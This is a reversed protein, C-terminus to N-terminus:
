QEPARRNSIGHKEKDSAVLSPLAEDPSLSVGGRGIVLFSSFDLGLRHACLERLQTSADVLEGPLIVLSAALDLEPAAIKVTGSTAGTATVSTASSLFNDARLFINGGRGIAANASILSHDLVIFKPDIFINGGAGGETQASGAVTATGATATLSSDRLYIFDPATLHISGGNRGASATVNSGERLDIRSDSAVDITGADALAASTTILSTGRLDIEDMARVVVSGADGSGTNSSGIFAASDLSLTGLQLRVSGSSGAGLSTASVGVRMGKVGEIELRDAEISIDGGRGGAGPSASEAGIITPRLGDDSSIVVKEAQVTIRGGNGSGATGAAIVGGDSVVLEGTTVSVNGGAGSRLTSASVLSSDEVSTRGSVELDVDGGAGVGSASTNISTGERLELDETRVVINGGSGTGATRASIEGSDSLTMQGATVNISGGRGANPGALSEAFIGSGEGDIALREGGFVIDGGRGSGSTTASIKGGSEVLADHFNVEMSGGRGGEHTEATIAAGMSLRATQADVRLNGGDGSGFAAASIEANANLFLRGATVLVAGSPGTSGPESRVSITTGAGALTLHESAVEISGGAGSNQTTASIYAGSNLTLHTANVNALGAGGSGTTRVTILGGDSMTLQGIRADINGGSGSARKGEASAALGAFVIPASRPGFLQLSRAGAIEATRANVFIDGADGSGLTSSAIGAGDLIHLEKADVRISGGDGGRLTAAFVGTLRSSGHGNITFRETSIRVPGANAPGRTSTSVLMGSAITLDGTQLKVVGARGANEMIGFSNAFIGANDTFNNVLPPLNGGLLSISDKAIVRVNGGRASSYTSASIVVNDRMTLSGAAIDISGGKGHVAGPDLGAESVAFIGAAGQESGRGRLNVRDAHVVVNGGPGESSTSASIFARDHLRLSGSGIRISGGDGAGSTTAEISADGFLGVGNSFQNSGRAQLSIDGALGTGTTSANIQGNSLVITPATIGISPRRAPDSDAVDGVAATVRAGDYLFFGSTAAIAIEGANGLGNSESSIAADSDIDIIEGALTISGASGTGTTAASVISGDGSIRISPASISIDPTHMQGAVDGVTATIRGGSSVSLRDSATIGIDGANGAGKSRTSIAGGKTLALQSLSLSINGGSGSGTTEASIGVQADGEGTIELLGTHIDISGGTGANELALTEASIGSDAGSITITGAEVFALGGDGSGHSAVTIGAGGALELAGAIRIQLDGGPGGNLPNTTQASVGSGAGAAFFEGAAITLAGGRGAGRTATSLRAGAEVEVRGGVTITLDGAHGGADTQATIGTLLGSSGASTRLSGAVIDIDGGDGAGFSNATINGGDLVALPGDISFRLDGARGTAAALSQSTIASEKDSVTLSTANLTLDGADGSGGTSLSILASERVEVAGGIELFVNGGAGGAGSATALLTEAGIGSHRTGQRGSLLLSGAELTLDGGTGPGLTTRTLQSGSLVQVAGSIALRVDGARGAVTKSTTNAGIVSGGALSLTAAQLELDGGDGSGQTEALIGAGGTLSVTEAAVIRMAAADGTAGAAVAAGIQTNTGSLSISRATVDLGGGAGAGNTRAQITAGDLLTLAGAVTLSVDGGRGSATAETATVIGAGEGLPLMPDGKIELSGATILLPGGFGSDSAISGIKSDGELKLAGAVDLQIKGGNGSSDSGGLIASDALLSVSNAAIAVDGAEGAGFSFTNIQGGALTLGTTAIRMSGAKGAPLSNFLNVSAGGSIVVNAASLRLVSATGLDALPTVTLLSGSTFSAFDRVDVDVGDGRAADRARALISTKSAVLRGARIVVRGGTDGTGSTSGGLITNFGASGLASVNGLNTFGATAPTAARDRIDLALAGSSRVSVLHVAGAEAYLLASDRLTIDGGLLALNQGPTTILKSGRVTIASPTGGLFGFASVPASTLVDDEPQAADFRGQNGLNVYDATTAVFSGSIDLVADPGFVIGNPNIFFLNAGPITSIIRGDISSSQGGTVRALINAVDGPGSFTASEGAVLDFRTFSHFLNGGARKGLTDPIPFDQGIKM